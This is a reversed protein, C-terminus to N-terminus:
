VPQTQWVPQSCKWIVSDLKLLNEINECDVECITLFYENWLMEDHDMIPKFWYM